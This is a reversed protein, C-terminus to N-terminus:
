PTTSPSLLGEQLYVTKKIAKKVARWITISGQLYQFEDHYSAKLYGAKDKRPHNCSTPAEYTEGAEKSDMEPQHHFTFRSEKQNHM